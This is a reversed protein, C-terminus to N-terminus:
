VSAQAAEVVPANAQRRQAAFITRSHWSIPPVRLLWGECTMVLKKARLAPREVAWWSLIAFAFALPYVCVFDIWWVYTWSGLTTFAQQLPFGYLYLGYSYDGSLLLRHRPPNLTGLYVTAVAAPAAIFYDGYPTLLMLATLGLSGLGIVPPLRIRDRYTYLVVGALFCFVLVKGPFPGGSPLHKFHIAPMVALQLALAAWLLLRRRSAVGIVALVALALYSKLEYPITWLQSNVRYSFPNREFVGPLHYHIYGFMNLFYSRFLPSHFYAARSLTTLAPGLILASLTVELALAPALRIVRLGLFSVLSKNRELSGAVLFGSLAFFMPLILGILARDPSDWMAMGHPKSAIVTFSHHLIVCSALVLRMYDFGAPRHGAASIKEAITPEGAAFKMM